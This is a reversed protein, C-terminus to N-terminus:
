AVIKNPCTAVILTMSNQTKEIQTYVADVYTLDLLTSSVFM